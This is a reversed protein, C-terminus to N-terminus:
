SVRRAARVEAVARWDIPAGSVLGSQELHHEFM